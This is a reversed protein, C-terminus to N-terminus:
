RAPKGRRARSLYHRETLRPDSHQLLGSPDEALDAARKRMDRLFMARIREALEPKGDAEAQKAAAERAAEYRDRLMTPSVRKGTPTSLLMLHDAQIARRRALLDPLVASLNVDFDLRKGTKSAKLKLVDDKPLLITRCDTLRMGTATSLDMCDRLVQDGKAYVAAFLEDSVEFERPQEKNKWRSRSLGAAPWHKSTLGEGRAWNWVIQFVSLERNARTKGSRERLYRKLHAFEVAEWTATGFVPRLQKLSLTYDRRTSDRYDPLVEREWRGFAEEITGAILDAGEHIERWRALAKAHDKGLPIDPLGEPRRDYFYYVAVSGNKRRRIHARFRPYQGTM